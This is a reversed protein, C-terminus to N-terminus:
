FKCAQAIGTRAQAFGERVQVVRALYQKYIGLIEKKDM